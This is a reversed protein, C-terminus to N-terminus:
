RAFISSPAWGPPFDDWGRLRRCCCLRGTELLDRLGAFPLVHDCRLSILSLLFCRRILEARQDISLIQASHAEAEPGRDNKTADHRAHVVQRLRSVIGMLRVNVSLLLLATASVFIVPAVLAQFLRTIDNM